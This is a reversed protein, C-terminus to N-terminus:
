DNEDKATLGIFSHDFLDLYSRIGEPKDRAPDLSVFVIQVKATKEKTFHRKVNALYKLTTPCVDPCLAYGFYLLYFSGRLQNSTFIKSQTNQLRWNGGLSSKRDIPNVKVQAYPTEKRGFFYYGFLGGLIGATM